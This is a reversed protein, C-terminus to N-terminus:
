IADMVVQETADAGAEIPMPRSAATAAPDIVVAWHPPARDKVRMLGTPSFRGETSCAHLSVVIFDATDGSKAYPLLVLEITVPSGAIDVVPIIVYVPMRTAVCAKWIPMAADAMAPDLCERMPRGAMSADYIAGIREGAHLCRFDISDGDRVVECLLLDLADGARENPEFSAITPLARGSRARFWDRVLSVQRISRVISVHSRQFPM